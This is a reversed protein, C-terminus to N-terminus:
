NSAFSFCSDLFSTFCSRSPFRSKTGFVVLYLLLNKIERAFKKMYDFLGEKKSDFKTERLNPIFSQDQPLLTTEQNPNKIIIVSDPCFEIFYEANSSSTYREHMWNEEFVSEWKVKTYLEVLMLIHIYLPADSFEQLLIMELVLEVRKVKDMENLIYDKLLGPNNKLMRFLCMKELKTVKEM